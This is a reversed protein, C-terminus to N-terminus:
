FQHLFALDGRHFHRIDEIGYKMMVLRDLGFGWAFGQYKERDVGAQTLVQPHILGAGALEIWGKGGCTRCSKDKQGCIACDVLFEIGPEVFPFYSPQIKLQVPRQFFEQLFTKFTGILDTLTVKKDLYLGEMQYLTHEHRADTAEHRFCRGVIVARLPPQAQKLLRHQMSSTHTVLVLGQETWFTDWLDRAPHQPPINLAGFNHFDDDVERAEHIEFGMRLFIDEAYQRMQTLPHLHGQRPWYGPATLDFWEGSARRKERKKLEAEKKEYAQELKQKLNNLKIGQERRQEPDLNRLRRSIKKLAGKKGLYVQHWLQLQNLDQARALAKLAEEQLAAIAEAM